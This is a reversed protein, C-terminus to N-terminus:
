RHKKKTGKSPKSAPTSWSAVQAKIWASEFDVAAYAVRPDRKTGFMCSTVGAILGGKGCLLPSGSDGTDALGTGAKVDIISPSSRVVTCEASKRVGTTAPASAPMTAPVGAPMSSSVFDMSAMGDGLGVANCSDGMAPAGGCLMPAIASIRDKLHVLALDYAAEADCGRCKGELIPSWLSFSVQRDVEYETASDPSGTPQARFKEIKVPATKCSRSGTGTEVKVYTLCHAATLAVQPAILTASCSMTGAKHTDPDVYSGTVLGIAPHAGKDERGDTIASAETGALALAAITWVEGVVRYTRM